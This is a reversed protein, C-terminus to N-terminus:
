FGMQVGDVVAGAANIHMSLEDHGIIPKFKGQVDPITKGVKVEAWVGIMFPFGKGVNNHRTIHVPVRGNKIPLKRKCTLFLEELSTFVVVTGIEIYKAVVSLSGDHCRSAGELIVRDQGSSDERIFQKYEMVKIGRGSGNIISSGPGLIVGVGRGRSLGRWVGAMMITRVIVDMELVDGGVQSPGLGIRCRKSREEGEKRGFHNFPSQLARCLICPNGHAVNKMAVVSGGVRSEIDWPTVLVEKRVNDIRVSWRNVIPRSRGSDITTFRRVDHIDIPHFGVPLENRCELINNACPSGRIAEKTVM